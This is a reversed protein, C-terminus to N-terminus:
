LLATTTCHEILVTLVMLNPAGKIILTDMVPAQQDITGEM